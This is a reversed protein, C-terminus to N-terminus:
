RTYIQRHRFECWNEYRTSSVTNDYNCSWGCQPTQHTWAHKPSKWLMWQQPPVTNIRHVHRLILTSCPCLNQSCTIKTQALFSCRWSAYATGCSSPPSPGWLCAVPISQVQIQLLYNATPQFCLCASHHLTFTASYVPAPCARRTGSSPTTKHKRTAHQSLKLVSADNTCMSLTQTQASRTWLCTDIHQLKQNGSTRQAERADPSSSWKAGEFSKAEFLGVAALKAYSVWCCFAMKSRFLRWPNGWHECIYRDISLWVSTHLVTVFKSSTHSSPSPYSERFLEQHHCFPLQTQM